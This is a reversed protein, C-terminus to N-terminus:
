FQFNNIVESYTDTYPTIEKIILKELQDINLNEFEECNFIRLPMWYWNKFENFKKNLKKELCFKLKNRINVASAENKSSQLNIGFHLEKDNAKEFYLGTISGYLWKKDYGIDKLKELKESVISKPIFNIEKKAASLQYKQKNLIFQLQLMLIKNDIKDIEKATIDPKTKENIIKIINSERDADFQFDIPVSFNEKENDNELFLIDEDNDHYYRLNYNKNVDVGKYFHKITIIHNDYNIFNEDNPIDPKIDINYAAIRKIRKQKNGIKVSFSEGCFTKLKEVLKYLVQERVIQLINKDLGLEQLLNIKSYLDECVNSIYRGDIIKSYGYINDKKKGVAHHLEWYEVFQRLIEKIDNENFIEICDMEKFNIKIQGFAEKSILEKKLEKESLKKENIKNNIQNIINKIVESNHIHKQYDIVDKGATIELLKEGNNELVKDLIQLNKAGSSILRLKNLLKILDKDSQYKNITSNLVDNLFKIFISHEIIKFDFLELLDKVTKEKVIQNSWAANKQKNIVTLKDDADKNNIDGEKILVKIGEENYGCIDVISRNDIYEEHACMFVFKPVFIINKNKEKEDNIYKHITHYYMEIQAAYEGAANKRPNCNINANKKNEIVYIYINNDDHFKAELVIDFNVKNGDKADANPSGASYYCTGMNLTRCFDLKRKGADKNDVYNLFDSCINYKIEEIDDKKEKESVNLCWEILRSISDEGANLIEFINKYKFADDTKAYEIFKILRELNEITEKDLINKSNNKFEILKQGADEKCNEAQVLARYYYPNM